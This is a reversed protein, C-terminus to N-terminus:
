SHKRNKYTKHAGFFTPWCTIESSNEFRILEKIARVSNPEFQENVNYNKLTHEEEIGEKTKGRTTIYADYNKKYRKELTKIYEDAYDEYQERKAMEDIEEIRVSNKHEKFLASVKALYTAGKRSFAKRGKFRKSFITFIQSEMTGMNRYEIEKPAKPLEILDTYRELDKSLYVKLQELRKVQKEEGGVEYKLNEIYACIKKYEKNEFMRIIENRNKEGEISKVIEQYIHFKDKQRIMNKDALKNIWQAGDGNVVRYKIAEEKYNSYIKAERVERIEKTSMFGAIYTKNVIEHRSSDKKWGEYSEHLKLEAKVRKPIVYEKGKKEYAIKNREIQEKRDKGQLNIWLGDAEEFLIPIEKKGKELKNAKYLKVMEKEKKDIKEGVHMTLKRMTEHSLQVQTMQEIENAAKRYSTTQVVADLVKEVVNKSIRGNEFIKVNEDLLYRYKKGKKNNNIYVRREYEVVGMITKVCNKRKGKNRMEIPRTSKIKDDISELIEKVIQRGIECVFDYVKNEIENFDIQEKTIISDFM